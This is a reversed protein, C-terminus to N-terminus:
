QLGTNRRNIKIENADPQFTRKTDTCNKEDNQRNTHQNQKRSAGETAILRKTESMDRKKKM